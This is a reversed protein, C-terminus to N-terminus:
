SERYQISPVNEVSTLDEARVPPRKRANSVRPWVTEYAILELEDCSGLIAKYTLQAANASVMGQITASMRITGGSGAELSTSTSIGTMTPM